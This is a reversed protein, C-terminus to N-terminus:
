LKGLIKASRFNLFGLQSFLFEGVGYAFGAVSMINHDIKSHVGFVNVGKVGFDAGLVLANDAVHNYIQVFM